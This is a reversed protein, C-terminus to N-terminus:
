PRHVPKRDLAGSHPGALAATRRQVDAGAHTRSAREVREAATLLPEEEKAAHKVMSIIDVLNKGYAAAHVKELNDLTFREKTAALKHRLESLADTGWDQPGISCFAFPTSRRPNEQM